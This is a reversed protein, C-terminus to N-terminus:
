VKRKAKEEDRLARRLVKGINTKPLSERFEIYKPQKYGTFNDRCFKKVDDETIISGEKKVVFIKVAEGSREDDIGICAVEGVGPMGAVVDEIENPYVNFGSVIIMDKKRDVIRIFGNDEVLALDGTKLWGDKTLVKATEEPQQWYGEMVQPGKICLEGIENRPLTEEADNKICVQTAPIPLGITGTFNGGDNVELAVVPSTETLGYGMLLRVGTIQKWKDAVVKQIAMGGGICIRLKSFDSKRFERNLLLMAFLTNVGTIFSYQYRSIEKVFGKLNRPNSILVNHGGIRVFLLCNVTLAFVHYLPLATIIIENGPEHEVLLTIQQINSVMNGHSLMAGKALGTTGGTYQLFAIDEKSVSVATFTLKAARKMVDKFLYVNELEYDPVMHKIHKITFNIIGSKIAPFMDGIETIIAHEVCTAGIIEALVSAFNAVIVIVKVNADELQHRLERATYMPNVNVVVLGARLAGFLCVPYQLLNPLMLAISDGKKMGLEQQLYAAFDRSKNDLEAYTLDTGMNSYAIKNAFQKCSKDFIDVLSSFEAFDPQTTNEVFSSQQEAM